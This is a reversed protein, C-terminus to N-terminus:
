PQGGGPGGRGADRAEPPQRFAALIAAVEADSVQRFDAYHAGVAFFLAPQSLCVVADVLRSLEAVTDPPAVPVAIVIRAAGRARVAAVAARVTAGTAIGDDVLIATCGALRRPPGAGYDAARQRIEALKAEALRDIQDRPPGSDPPANVVLQPDDGDAIAAVAFEPNGPLAIKKVMIVDLPASLAAAVPAAVPLGGRPLALVVPPADWGHAALVGPLRNALERGAAKRDTFQKSTM